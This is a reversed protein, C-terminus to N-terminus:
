FGPDRARPLAPASPATLEVSGAAGIPVLVTPAVAPASPRVMRPGKSQQAELTRLDKRLERATADVLDEEPVGLARLKTKLVELERQPAAAKEAAAQLELMEIESKNVEKILRYAAIDRTGATLVKEGEENTEKAQYHKYLAFAGLALGIAILPLGLGFGVAALAAGHLAVAAIVGIAVNLVAMATVFWTEKQVDKVSVTQGAASIVKEALKEAQASDFQNRPRGVIRSLSSQTDASQQTIASM